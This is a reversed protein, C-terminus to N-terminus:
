KNKEMNYIKYIEDTYEEKDEYIYLPKEHILFSGGSKSGEIMVLNAPENFRPHIFRIRKPEIKYKRMLCFIDVLREAKHVMYLTGNFNLLRSSERIVDDLTCSIEHRAIVKSDKENIIGSGKKIYPPNVTVADVTASPIYSKLKNLDKNIIKVRDQLSNMEISRKAMDAFEEQIEVGIIERANTKGALLIAIVGTGTCLDVIKENKKMDKAFDSLLVADIGFCFSKINQIIKLGKYQLDDIREHEKLEM